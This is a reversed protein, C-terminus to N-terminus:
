EVTAPTVPVYEVAPEAAAEAMEKAKKDLLKRWFAPDQIAAAGKSSRIRTKEALYPLALEFHAQLDKSLTSLGDKSHFGGVLAATAGLKSASADLFLHRELVSM